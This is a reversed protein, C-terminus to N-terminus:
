IPMWTIWQFLLYVIVAACLLVAVRQLPWLAAYWRKVDDFPDMPNRQRYV